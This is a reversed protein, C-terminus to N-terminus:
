GQLRDPYKLQNLISSGPQQRPSPMINVHSRDETLKVPKGNFDPVLELHQHHGLEPSSLPQTGSKQEAPCLTNMNLLQTVQPVDSNLQCARPLMDTQGDATFLLNTCPLAQNSIGEMYRDATHFQDKESHALGDQDATDLPVSKLTFIKRLKCNASIVIGDLSQFVAGKFIGSTFAVLDICLNCWIKRKIMFLPIKAHLPTVSLEKHITSLYLRRKINRLDTIEVKKLWVADRQLM